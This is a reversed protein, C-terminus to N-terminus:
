LSNVAKMERLCVLGQARLAHYQTMGDLHQCRRQSRTRIFRRFRNQVFWDIKKFAMRPYGYRFYGGWGTLFRNVEKVVTDLPSTNQRRTLTRLRERARALSKTAPVVNLYRGTGHLSRDFRFTFGLFNLSAGPQNLNIISTKDRNLTLGLGDLTTEVFDTLRHDIRRALAVWDDAYRVLRVDM